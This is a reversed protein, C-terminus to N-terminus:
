GEQFSTLLSIIANTISLKDSAIRPEFCANRL